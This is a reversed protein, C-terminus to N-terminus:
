AMQLSTHQLADEAEGTELGRKPRMRCFFRSTSGGNFKEVVNERAGGCISAWGDRCELERNEREQTQAPFQRGSRVTEDAM